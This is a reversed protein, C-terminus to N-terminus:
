AGLLNTISVVVMGSLWMETILSNNITVQAGEHAIGGGNKSRNASIISDQVTLEGGIIYIAGGLSESGPSSSASCTDICQGHRLTINAILVIGNNIRFIRQTAVNPLAAAQIITTSADNGVFSIDSQIAPLESTITYINAPLNITDAGAGALCDTSGSQNDNNANTIAERLSCFGNNAITDDTATVTMTAAAVPQVHWILSFIVTSLIFIATSNIKRPHYVYVGQYHVSIGVRVVLIAYKKFSLV